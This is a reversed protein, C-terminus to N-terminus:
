QLQVYNTCEFMYLTCLTFYGTHQSAAANDTIFVTQFLILNYRSMWVIPKQSRGLSQFRQLAEHTCIDHVIHIPVRVVYVDLKFSDINPLKTLLTQFKQLHPHISFYYFIIFEFERYNPILNLQGICVRSSVDSILVCFSSLNSCLM